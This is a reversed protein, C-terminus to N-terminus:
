MASRTAAAIRMFKGGIYLILISLIIFGHFVIHCDLSTAAVDKSIEAQWISFVM